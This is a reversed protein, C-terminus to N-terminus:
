NRMSFLEPIPKNCPAPIHPNVPNLDLKRESNQAFYPAYPFMRDELIHHPVLILKAKYTAPSQKKEASCRSSRLKWPIGEHNVVKMPPSLNRSFM